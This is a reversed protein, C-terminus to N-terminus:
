RGPELVVVGQPFAATFFTKDLLATRRLGPLDLICQRGVAVGDDLLVGAGLTSNAGISCDTGVQVGDALWVSTGLRAGHGVLCRSGVQTNFGLRVGEGVVTGSGVLCNEGLVASAAVIAGRCVLPPMRMGRSKLEGMLELRRFNLFQPGWAVFATCNSPSLGDLAALDFRYDSDQGVDIAHMHIGPEAETWASVAWQLMAGSGVIYKDSSM